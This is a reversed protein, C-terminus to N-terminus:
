ENPHRLGVEALPRARFRLELPGTRAVFCEQIERLFPLSREKHDFNISYKKVLTATVLRLEALGLNRGICKYRGIIGNAKTWLLCEDRLGGMWHLNGTGFPMFGKKSRVMEPNDCWREPIFSTADEFCDEGTWITLMRFFPLLRNCSVGLYPIDRRLLLLREPFLDEVYSQVKKRHRGFAEQPCHLIFDFLRM